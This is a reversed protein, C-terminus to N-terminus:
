KAWPRQAQFSTNLTGTLFYKPTQKRPMNRAIAEHFGTLSNGFRDRAWVKRLEATFKSNRAGDSAEQRDLCASILVVSAGTAEASDMDTPLGNDLKKNEPRQQLAKLQADTFGKTLPNEPIQEVKGTTKDRFAKTVTGSHCSDSFVLIRVGPKFKSWLQALEDDVMPGDYLCWTEDFDDDEDDNTDDVYAGHGSYSLVYTDGSKLTDAASRIAKRVAIKTANKTLLTSTKFGQSRAIAAMDNADFECGKLKGDWGYSDTSFSNLGIALALGNGNTAVSSKIAAGSGTLALDIKPKTSCNILCPHLAALLSLVIRSNM